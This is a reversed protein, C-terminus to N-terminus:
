NFETINIPILTGNNAYEFDLELLPIGLSNYIFKSNFLSINGSINQSYLIGVMFTNEDICKVRELLTFNEVLVKHDHMIDQNSIMDGYVNIQDDQWALAMKSACSDVVFSIPTTKINAQAIQTGDAGNYRGIFIGLNNFFTWILNFTEDIFTKVNIQVRYNEAVAETIQYQETINVTTITYRKAVISVNNPAYTVMFDNSTPIAAIDFEGDYSSHINLMKTFSPSIYEVLISYKDLVSQRVSYAILVATNNFASSKINQVNQFRGFEQEMGIFANNIIDCYQATILTYNNGLYSNTIMSMNKDYFYIPYINALELYTSNISETNDSGPFFATTNITTNIYGGVYALLNNAAYSDTDCGNVCNYKIDENMALLQTINYTNSVTEVFYTLCVKNYLRGTLDSCGNAVMNTCNEFQIIPGPTDVVLGSM